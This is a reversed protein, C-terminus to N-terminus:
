EVEIVEGFTDGAFTPKRWTTAWVVPYSPEEDLPPWDGVHGCGDTFYVLASPHVGNALCWNFPPAFATGGGGYEELVVDEGAEYEDVHRITQDCYIVYSKLPNVAEIIETLHGSITELESKDLSGSCDVAFVLEGNPTSDVGPLYVGEGIFRRNPKSWTYDHLVTELLFDQLIEHWPLSIKARSDIIGSSVDNGSGQGVAKEAQAAQQVNANIKREAEAVDTPTLEEGDEGKGDWVEGVHPSTGPDGDGESEGEGAGQGQEQEQEKEQQQRDAYIKEAALGRYKSDYLGGDPLNFLNSDILIGNIAYDAAENWRSHDRKGRRLHHLFVVHLVEHAIVSALEKLTLTLIWEANFFITIGDVAMTKTETSEELKLILALCGFFPHRVILHARAKKVFNLAESSNSM